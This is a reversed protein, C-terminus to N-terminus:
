ALAYWLLEYVVGQERMHPYHYSMIDQLNFNSLVSCLNLLLLVRNQCFKFSGVILQKLRIIDSILSNDYVSSHQWPNNPCVHLVIVCNIVGFWWEGRGGELFLVVVVFLRMAVAITSRIMQILPNTLNSKQPWSILYLM